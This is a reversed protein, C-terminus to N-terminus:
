RSAQSATAAVPASAAAKAAPLTLSGKQGCGTCLVAAAAMAAGTAALFVLSTASQPLM